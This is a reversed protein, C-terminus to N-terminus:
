GYGSRETIKKTFSEKNDSDLYACIHSTKHGVLPGTSLIYRDTEFM